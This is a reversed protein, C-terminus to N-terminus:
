RRNEMRREGIRLPSLARLPLENSVRETRLIAQRITCGFMFISDRSSKNDVRYGPCTRTVTLYRDAHTVRSVVSSRPLSTFNKRDGHEM